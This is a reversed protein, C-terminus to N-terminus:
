GSMSVLWVATVAGAISAYTREYCNYSIHFADCAILVYILGKFQNSSFVRVFALVCLMGIFFSYVKIPRLKKTVKAIHAMSSLSFELQNASRRYLGAYIYDDLASGINLIAEDHPTTVNSSSSM